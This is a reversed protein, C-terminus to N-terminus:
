EPDSEPPDAPDADEAKARRCMSIGLITFVSGLALYAAGMAGARKVFQVVAAFYFCGAALGYLLATRRFSKQRNNM